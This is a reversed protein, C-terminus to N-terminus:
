EVYLPPALRVRMFLRGAVLRGPPRKILDAGVDTATRRASSDQLWLYYRVSAPRPQAAGAWRPPPPTAGTCCAPLSSHSGVGPLDCRRVPLGPGTAEQTAEATRTSPLYAMGDCM